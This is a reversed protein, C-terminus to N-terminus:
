SVISHPIWADNSCLQLRMRTNWHIVHMANVTKRGTGFFWNLYQHLTFLSRLQLATRCKWLYQRYLSSWGSILGSRAPRSAYPCGPPGNTASLFYHSYSQYLFLFSNKDSFCKRSIKNFASNGCTVPTREIEWRCPCASSRSSSNAKDTNQNITAHHGSTRLRLM